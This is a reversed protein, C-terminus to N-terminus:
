YDPEVGLAILADKTEKIRKNLAEIVAPRVEDVFDPKQYSGHLTIGLFTDNSDETRNRQTILEELKNRLDVVKTIDAYKM